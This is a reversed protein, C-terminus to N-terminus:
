ALRDLSPYTDIAVVVRLPFEGFLVQYCELPRALAPYFGPYPLM